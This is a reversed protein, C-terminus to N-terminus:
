IAVVSGNGPVESGVLRGVYCEGAKKSPSIAAVMAHLEAEMIRCVYIKAIPGVLFLSYLAFDVRRDPDIGPAYGLM